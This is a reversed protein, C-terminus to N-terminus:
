INALMKKVLKEGFIKLKWNFKKKLINQNNKSGILVKVENRRIYKKNIKTFKKYNLGFKQYAVKIIKEGSIGKGSSLIMDCPKLKTIYYVGKIIEPAWSYDRVSKINGVTVKKKKYANLCIKKIFFDKDRLPSEVQLFIINFCNVEKKRFKKILRFIKIQSKIYPNSNKSLKSNLSILGNNPKFIYGTNAKLFNAKNKQKELVELFNKPGIFNSQLTEKKLKISKTLSSQGSFYFINKPSYKNLIKFINKKSLIDLKEFKVKKQINLYKFNKYVKRYKRTTVIVKHKKLILYNALYASLVGSGTILSINKTM